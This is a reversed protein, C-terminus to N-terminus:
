CLHIVTDSSSIRMILQEEEEVAEKVRLVADNERIIEEAYGELIRSKEANSMLLFGSYEEFARGVFRAINASVVYDVKRIVNEAMYSMKVDAGIGLFPDLEMVAILRNAAEPDANFKKRVFDIELAAITLANAEATRMAAIENM